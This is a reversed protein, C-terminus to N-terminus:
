VFREQHIRTPPLGQARLLRLADEVMTPVGCLYADFDARGAFRALFPGQIHGREGDWAGPAARSVVPVYHFGPHAAAWQALEAHYPLAEPTPAGLFLWVDPEQGHEWQDLLMSRFPAVGTGTALFVATRGPPTRFTFTGKAPGVEVRDGPQRHYLWGSEGVENVNKVALDIRFPDAPSSAISYPRHEPGGATEGFVMCFQGATFAYPGDLTELRLLVLLPSPRQVELVRMARHGTRSPSSPGGPIPPEPELAAAVATAIAPRCAQVISAALSDAIAQALRGGAGAAPAIAM